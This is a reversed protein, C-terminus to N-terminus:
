FFGFRGIMRGLINSALILSNLALVAGLGGKVTAAPIIMKFSPNLLVAFALLLIFPTVIASFIAIYRVWFFSAGSLGLNAGLLLIIFSSILMGKGAFRGLDLWEFGGNLGLVISVLAICLWFVALSIFTVWAHGVGTDGGPMKNIFALNFLYGAALGALLLLFNGVIQM